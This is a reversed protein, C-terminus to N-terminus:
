IRFGGSVLYVVSGRRVGVDRGFSVIFFCGLFVVLRM